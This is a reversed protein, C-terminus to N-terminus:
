DWSGALWDLSGYHKEQQCHFGHLSASLSKLGYDKVQQYCFGSHNQSAYDPQSHM